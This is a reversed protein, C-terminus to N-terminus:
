IPERRTACSGEHCVAGTVKFTPKPCPPQPPCEREVALCNHNSMAQKSAAYTSCAGGCCGPKWSTLECDADATCTGDGKVLVVGDAETKVVERDSGAPDSGPPPPPDPRPAPQSCSAQALSVFVFLGARMQGM